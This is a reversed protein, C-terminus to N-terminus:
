AVGTLVPPYLGSNSEAPIIRQGYQEMLDQVIQEKSHGKSLGKEIQNTMKEATECHCESVTLECGGCICNIRESISQIDSALVTSSGSCAALILVLIISAVVIIGAFRNRINRTIM